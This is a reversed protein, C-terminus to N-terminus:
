RKGNPNGATALLLLTRALRKESSNFLQDILDVEIRINRSLMYAVFRGSFAHEAHLVRIM